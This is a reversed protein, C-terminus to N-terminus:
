IPVFSKSFSNRYSNFGFSESISLRWLWGKAIWYDEFRKQASEITM